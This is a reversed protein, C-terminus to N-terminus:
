QAILIHERRQIIQVMLKLKNMKGMKNEMKQLFVLYILTIKMDFEKFKLNLCILLINSILVKAHSQNNIESTFGEDTGSIM